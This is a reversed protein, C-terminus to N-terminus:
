LGIKEHLSIVTKSNVSRDFYQNKITMYDASNFFKNMIEESPFEITFVRNINDQTKSKLVKSVIFDFGFDGGVSNLLPTMADRYNQYMTEDGVDLGMIREYTMLDVQKNEDMDYM